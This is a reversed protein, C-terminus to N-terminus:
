RHRIIELSESIPTNTFLSVVDHSIFEEGEDIMIEALDEALDKSNIVHHQSQGVLPGLIRALEKSTEYMISGCYDVIPRLHTGAKHIKPTCYMRPTNEVTPYLKWYEKVTIKEEKKFRTLLSVLKKKYRATPDNKLKEYTKDDNLMINVKEEYDEKDLVVTSKGKDAPLILITDEKRLDKLAIKEDKSLNSKTNNTSKLVGVM